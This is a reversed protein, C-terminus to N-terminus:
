VNLRKRPPEDDDIESHEAEEMEPPEYAELVTDLLNNRKNIAYKWAEDRGYDEMEILTKATNRITKYIIYDQMANFWMVRYSLLAMLAKRFLPELEEYAKSRAEEQEM